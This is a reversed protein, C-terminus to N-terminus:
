HPGGTLPLKRKRAYIIPVIVMGILVTMKIGVAPDYLLAAGCVLPFLAIRVPLKLHPHANIFHAGIPGYRYYWAVFARGPATVMLYRDRFNRLTQVQPASYFGYAATAIFCGENKLNPYPSITEPFDSLMNSIASEQQPGVTQVTELSYSSENASGPNSAITKDIVATVTAYFTTQALASIAVYYKIGNVLNSLTGSSVAGGPFDTYTPLSSADFSSTSYYVRYGTAGPVTTWILQLAQDLPATSVFTPTVPVAPGGSSLGSLTATTTGVPVIFPSAGENAQTGTYVGSSTGYYIRYYTVKSNGTATWNLTITDTAAATLTSTLGTVIPLIIDSSPGGYAGMDSSTNFSNIYSPNGANICPSGSQLHFDSNALNVFLPDATSITGTVGTTGNNFYDNYSIQDMTVSTSIATINNSFINNSILIDSNTSVATGNNYFTNNVISVSSTATVSSNQVSIATNSGGLKFVNNTISIGSSNIVSIGVNAGLFTLNQITVSSVGNLNVLTGSGSLFTGSTLNGIIPVNSIPTFSGSYPTPDAQVLIRFPTTSTAATNLATGAYNIADQISTFHSPDTLTHEVILDVALADRPNSVSLLVVLATFVLLIYKTQM